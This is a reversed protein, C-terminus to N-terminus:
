DVDELAVARIWSSDLGAIRLPFGIFFFRRKKLDQLNDLGEIVPIDNRLLFDHTAMSDPAEVDISDDIGLMKIRKKYLYEAADPAIYPREEVKYNKSAFLLVIDGQKIGELDEPLIPENKNKRTLDVVTAEGIFNELPMSAIDKGEKLYHSPGEVHTGIHTETEVWNMFTDDGGFIFEKLELRRLEKGHIYKGDHLKIGPQLKKSLDVLRVKELDIM